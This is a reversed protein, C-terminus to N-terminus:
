KDVGKLLERCDLCRHGLRVHVLNQHPCEQLCPLNLDKVPVSWLSECSICTFVVEPEAYATEVVKMKKPPYMCYPCCVEKLADIVQQFTEKTEEQRLFDLMAKMALTPDYPM